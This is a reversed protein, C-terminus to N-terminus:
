LLKVTYIRCLSQLVFFRQILVFTNVYKDAYMKRLIHPIKINLFCGDPNILLFFYNQFFSDVLFLFTFAHLRINKSIPRLIYLVKFSFIFRDRFLKLVYCVTASTFFNNLTTYLTYRRLLIMSNLLIPVSYYQQFRNLVKLYFEHICM